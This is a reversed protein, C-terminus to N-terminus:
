IDEQQRYHSFVRKAENYWKNYLESKRKLIRAEKQIEELSTALLIKDVSIGGASSDDLFRGLIENGQEAHRHMDSSNPFLEKVERIFEQSYM